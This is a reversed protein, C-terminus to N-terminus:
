GRDTQNHSTVTDGVVLVDTGDTEAPRAWRDGAGRTPEEASFDRTQGAVTFVDTFRETMQGAMEYDDPNDDPIGDAGDDPYEDDDGPMPSFFGLAFFVAASVGLAVLWTGTSPIWLRLMAATFGLVLLLGVGPLLFRLGRQARNAPLQNRAIALAVRVFAVVTFVVLGLGFLGTVSWLSGRVDTVTSITMAEEGSEGRVTLEGWILGTALRGLDAFDIPYSLTGTAGPEVTLETAAVYRYFTLGLINGALEVRKVVLPETGNNTVKLVVDGTTGPDLRLPESTTAGAIDQGNLTASVTVGGEPAAVAAASGVFAAVLLVVLAAILRRANM